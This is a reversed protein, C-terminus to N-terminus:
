WYTCKTQLATPTQTIANPQSSLKDVGETEGKGPSESKDNRCFYAFVSARYSESVYTVFQNVCM